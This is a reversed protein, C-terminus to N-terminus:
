ANSDALETLSVNIHAREFSMLYDFVRAPDFRRGDVFRDAGLALNDLRWETTHGGEPKIEVEPCPLSLAICAERYLDTRYIQEALTRIALPQSIQGWRYMQSLLWTAHSRWPFTACYRYFEHNGIMLGSAITDPPLDLYEPRSLLLPLENVNKIDALWVAAQLLARLLAQHTRPHQKAWDARVALVKEPANQWIQHGNLLVHGHGRATAVQNWPEGVCLGDIRGAALQSAMQPPPIVILNVDQDPDIDGAALWYRLLYNHCSYPYVMAFTLPALGEQHRHDMLQKLARLARQPDDMTRPELALLQERLAHSITLANGNLGLSFATILPTQVNSLGLTVAAPLPALMHAGQLSGICLKDRINSWSVERSLRVNLGEAEFLGQEQAVALVACDILPIFGLTLEHTELQM